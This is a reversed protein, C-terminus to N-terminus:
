PRQLRAAGASCQKTHRLRRTASAPAFSDNSCVITIMVDKTYFYNNIMALIIKIRKVKEILNNKNVAHSALTCGPNVLYVLCQSLLEAYM